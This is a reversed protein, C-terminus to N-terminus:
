GVRKAHLGPARPSPRHNAQMIRHLRWRQRREDDRRIEARRLLVLWWIAGLVFAGAWVLLMLGPRAATLVASLHALRAWM